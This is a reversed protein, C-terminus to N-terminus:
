KIDKLFTEVKSFTVENAWKKHDCYHLPPINELEFKVINERIHNDRESETLKRAEKIIKKVHMIYRNLTSADGNGTNLAEFLTTLYAIYNKNNEYISDPSFSGKECLHGTGPGYAYLGNGEDYVHAFSDGLAHILFGIKWANKEPDNRLLENIMQKLKNRRKIIKQEDGGHLSHLISNINQRYEWYFIGWFSVAPASFRLAQADPVQSYLAFKEALEKQGAALAIIDTTSVHGEAKWKASKASFSLGKVDKCIKESDIDPWWTTSACGSLSIM